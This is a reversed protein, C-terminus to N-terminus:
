GGKRQKDIFNTVFPSLYAAVKMAFMGALAALLDGIKFYYLVVFIVVMVALRIFYGGVLTRRTNARGYVVKHIRYGLHYSAFAAYLVGALFGAAYVGPNDFILFIIIEGVALYMLEVLYMVPLAPNLSNIRKLMTM